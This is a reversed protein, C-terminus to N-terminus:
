MDFLSLHHEERSVNGWYRFGFSAAKDVLMSGSRINLRLASPLASADLAVNVGSSVFDQLHEVSALELLRLYRCGALNVSCFQAHTEFCLCQLANAFDMVGSSM